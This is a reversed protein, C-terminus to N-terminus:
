GSGDREAQGNAALERAIANLTNSEKGNLRFALSAVNETVQVATKAGFLAVAVGDHDLVWRLAVEAPSVERNRAIAVVRDVLRLLTRFREGQFDPSRSRHDDSGFTSGEDYKGTLLGDGLVGWAIMPIRTERMITEAPERHILNYRHQIVHVPAIRQARRIEEASHNSLGIWGIKGEERCRALEEMTEEIPTTGDAWHVYYLPICEVKLRRLSAEVATRLYQPSTDRWVRGSSDWRVGFKSAIVVEHRRSGLARALLEESHGFGYCDATDFLDVGLELARCIAKVSNEDQVDGWGHGGIAWCGMGLRSVEPGGKGLSVREMM